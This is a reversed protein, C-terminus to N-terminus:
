LLLGFNLNWNPFVFAPYYEYYLCTWKRVQHGFLWVDTHTQSIEIAMLISGGPNLSSSDLYAGREVPMMSPCIDWNMGSTWQSARFLHISGLSGSLKQSHYHLALNQLSTVSIDHKMLRMKPPQPRFHRWVVLGHYELIHEADVTCNGHFNRPLPRKAAFTHGLHLCSQRVCFDTCNGELPNVYGM